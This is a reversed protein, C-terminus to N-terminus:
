PTSGGTSCNIVGEKHLEQGGPPQHLQGKSGSQPVEAATVRLLPLLILQRSVVFYLFITSRGPSRVFGEQPLKYREECGKSITALQGRELFGLGATPQELTLHRFQM